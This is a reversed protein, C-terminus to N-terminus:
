PHLLTGHCGLGQIGEQSVHQPMYGWGQYIHPPVGGQFGPYTQPPAGSQFRPYHGPMNPNAYPPPGNPHPNMIPYGPGYGAGAGPYSGYPPLGHTVRPVCKGCRGRDHAGPITPQLLKGRTAGIHVMNLSLTTVKFTVKVRM